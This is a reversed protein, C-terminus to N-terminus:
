LGFVEMWVMVFLLVFVIIMVCEKEILLFCDDLSLMLLLVVWGGVYLIGLVGFLSFLYNYVILLVALYVSYYDLGCIEVSFCLSYIYDDYIRLILKFLGM